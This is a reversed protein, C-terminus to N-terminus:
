QQQLLTHSNWHTKKAYIKVGYNELISAALFFPLLPYVDYLPNGSLGWALFVVIIFVSVLVCYDKCQSIKIGSYAARIILVLSVFFILFGVLGGEMLVQLYINHGNQAKTILTLSSTAGNGFVPKLAFYNLMESYITTRGSSWSDSQFRALIRAGEVTNNFLVVVVLALVITFFLIKFFHKKQTICLAAFSFFPIFLVFVRKGTLFVLYYTLLLLLVLLVKLIASKKKNCLLYCIIFGFFVTLYYGSIGTQFSFGTIINSIYFNNFITYKEPTMIQVNITKIISPNILQILCGVFAVFSVAFVAFLMKKREKPTFSVISVFLGMIIAVCFEILSDVNVANSLISVLFSYAAFLLWGISIITFRFSRRKAIFLFIFLVCFGLSFFKIRDPFLYIGILLAFLSISELSIYESFRKM